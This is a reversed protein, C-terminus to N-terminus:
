RSISRLRCCRHRFRRPSDRFGCRLLSSRSGKKGSVGATSAAAKEGKETSKSSSSSVNSIVVIALLLMLCHYRSLAVLARFSDASM